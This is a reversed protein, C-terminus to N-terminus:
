GFVFYYAGSMLSTESKILVDRIRGLAMSCAECRPEENTPFYQNAERLLLFGRTISLDEDRSPRGIMM